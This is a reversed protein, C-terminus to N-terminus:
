GAAADDTHADDGSELELRVVLEAVADSSGGLYELWGVVALVTRLVWRRHEDEALDGHRALTGIEGFVWANM